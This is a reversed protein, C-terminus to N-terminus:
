SVSEGLLAGRRESPNWKKKRRMEGKLKGGRFVVRARQGTSSDASVSIDNGHRAQNKKKM